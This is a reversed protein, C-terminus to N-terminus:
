KFPVKSGHEVKGGLLSLIPAYSFSLGNYHKLTAALLKLYEASVEQEVLSLIEAGIKTFRITNLAIQPTDEAKDIIIINGSYLLTSTTGKPSAPMRYSVPNTYLLGIEKLTVLDSFSIDHENLFDNDDLIFTQDQGELAFSGLKCFLKAETNSINRVVNLFRLSYTDPKKIEGALIKGWLGHMDRSSIDEAYRFFRSTWDDNPMNPPVTQEDKLQDAAESLIHEINNQRKIGQEMLRQNSRETLALVAEVQEEGIGHKACSAVLGTKDYSIKDLVSKNECIAESIVRIEYAKADAMRKHFHAQTLTGLGSSSVEILRTLPKSLGVLDKIEV